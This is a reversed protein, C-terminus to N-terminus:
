DTVQVRKLKHIKVLLRVAVRCSEISSESDDIYSHLFKVLKILGRQSYDKFQISKALEAAYEAERENGTRLIFFLVKILNAGIEKFKDLLRTKEDGDHSNYYQELYMTVEIKLKEIQDHSSFCKAQFYLM